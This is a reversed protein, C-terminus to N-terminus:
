DVSKGRLTSRSTLCRAISVLNPTSVADLLKWGLTDGDPTKAP